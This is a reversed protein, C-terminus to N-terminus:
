SVSRRPRTNAVCPSVLSSTLIFEDRLFCGEKEKLEPRGREYRSPKSLFMKFTALYLAVTGHWHSERNTKPFASEHSLTCQELAAEQM